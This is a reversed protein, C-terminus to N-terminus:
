APTLEAPWRRHFWLWQEPRALIFQGIVDNVETTVDEVSRDGPYIPEHVTVTFRVDPHRTMQIPVLPINLKKALRAAAPPTMAPHGLLPVEIGDNLKQDVLMTLSYGDKLAKLLGRGGRKGKPIQLRTMVQARLGIIHEDVLANNPARYVAGFRIGERRLTAGIAEWNAFHGSFFIAQRGEETFQQIIEANEVAVRDALKDVHAYEALTNGVNEWTDRLIAAREAATMEPYILRLNADARRHIKGTMPGITRLLKGVTRSASEVSLRGMLSLLGLFAAAEVRRGFTIPKNARPAPPQIESDWADAPTDSM